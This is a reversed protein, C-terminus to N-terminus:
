LFNFGYDGPKTADSAGHSSNTIVAFCRQHLINIKDTKTRAKGRLGAKASLPPGPALTLSKWTCSLTWVIVL